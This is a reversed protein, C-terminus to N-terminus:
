SDEPAQKLDAPIVVEYDVLLRWVKKNESELEKKSEYLDMVTRVIPFSLAFDSVEKGELIEEISELISNALVLENEWLRKEAKLDKNETGLRIIDQAGIIPGLPKGAESADLREKLNKNEAELKHHWRVYHKLEVELEQIRVKFDKEYSGIEQCQPCYWYIPNGRSDKRRKAHPHNCPKNNM